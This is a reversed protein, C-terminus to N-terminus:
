REHVRGRRAPRSERKPEAEGAAWAAVIKRWAGQAELVFEILERVAGRGAHAACTLHCRDRVEAAADAPCAALGAAALPPLDPLDDGMFAAAELPVGLRECLLRLDAGKDRSGQIVCAEDIGLDALRSRLPAAVRGSLIAVIIGERQAAKIAFGDRASFRKMNEGRASYYLGADTLVGDVDLVV